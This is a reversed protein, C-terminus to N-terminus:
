SMRRTESMAPLAAAAAVMRAAHSRLGRAAAVGAALTRGEGVRAAVGAGVTAACGKAVGGGLAVVSPIVTLGSSGRMATDFGSTFPASPAESM